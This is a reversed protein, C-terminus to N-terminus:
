FRYSDNPVTTTLQSHKTTSVKIDAKGISAVEHEDLNQDFQQIQKHGIKGTKLYNGTFLLFFLSLPQAIKIESKGSYVIKNRYM